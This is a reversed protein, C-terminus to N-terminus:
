ALVPPGRHRDASWALLQAGLQVRRTGAVSPHRVSSTVSLRIVLIRRVFRGTLRLLAWFAGEGCRLAVVTLAAAVLHAATMGGTMFATPSTTMGAASPFPVAPEQAAAHMVHPSMMLDGGMGFSFLTHFVAQAGMVVATLRLVSLRRGILLIAAPLSLMLAAVLVIPTPAAGGGLVHFALAVFVALGSAIGARVTRVGRAGLAPTRTTPASSTVPM